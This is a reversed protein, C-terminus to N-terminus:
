LLANLCILVIFMIQEFSLAARSISNATGRWLLAPGMTICQASSVVTQRPKDLAILLINVTNPKAWSM